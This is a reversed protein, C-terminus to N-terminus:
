ASKSVTLIVEGLVKERIERGALEAQSQADMNLYKRVQAETAHQTFLMITQLSVRHRYYLLSACTRRSDHSSLDDAIAKAVVEGSGDRKRVVVKRELEAELGIDKLCRNYFQDSFNKPCHLDYKELIAVPEPLEIPLIAPKDTKDAATLTFYYGRSSPEFSEPRILGYDSIRLGLYCALVFMDRTRELHEPLGDIAMVRELEETTLAYSYTPEEPGTFESSTMFSNTHIGRRLAMEALKRIKKFYKHVANHSRSRKYGDSLFSYFGSRQSYDMDMWTLERGTDKRWLEGYAELADIARGIDGLTSSAMPKKSARSREHMHERMWGVMSASARKKGALLGNLAAKPDHEFWQRFWIQYGWGAFLTRIERLRRNIEEYRANDEAWRTSIRMRQKDSDFHSSTVSYGIAASKRKYGAPTHHALRAQLTSTKDSGNRLGFSLKM